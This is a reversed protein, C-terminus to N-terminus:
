HSYGFILYLLYQQIIGKGSGEDEFHNDRMNRELESKSLKMKTVQSKGLEPNPCLPPSLDNKDHKIPSVSDSDNLDTSIKNKSETMKINLSKKIDKNSM